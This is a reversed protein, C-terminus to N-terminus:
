RNPTRHDWGRLGRLRKGWRALAETGRPGEPLAPLVAVPPLGPDPDLVSRAPAGAEGTATGARNLVLAAIRLGAGALHDALRRTELLSLREPLTVAVIRAGDPDALTAALGAHHERLRRLTATVPDREPDGPLPAGDADRAPTADGLVHHLTGRRELLRRRLGLLSECWRATRGPLALLRWAQGSPPLDVVLIEGAADAATALERLAEAGAQEETGPADGLLDVLSDLSAVSLYRYRRRLLERTQRIRARARAALDVEVASLGDAVSRPTAGLPVDLVDGLNHAPDLSALRVRRGGRALDLAFAAACTTKGAGGKGTFLYLGPGTM